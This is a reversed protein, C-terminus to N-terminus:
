WICIKHGHKILKQLIGKLKQNLTSFDSNTSTGDIDLKILHIEKNTTEISM